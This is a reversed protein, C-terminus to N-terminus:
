HYQHFILTSILRELINHSPTTIKKNGFQTTYKTLFHDILLPIDETRERLPSIYIKIINLRYYLDERFLGKKVNEGLNQNTSAIVWADAKVEKESGLPAFEGSQLVRLLKAQLALPM